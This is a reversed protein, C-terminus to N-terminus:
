EGGIRERQILDNLAVVDFRVRDVYSQRVALKAGHGYNATISKDSHGLIAKLVYDPAELDRLADTFLHRFSHFVKREGRFGFTQGYRSWWKSFNHSYFGNQGPRLDPFLRKGLSSDAGRELLGLDILTQHVPVQRLSTETKVKKDDDEARNIDFVWVGDICQLDSRHLQVIEGLRMGSFLGILPVWFKGDKFVHEGVTGARAESIRGTYVPTTFIVQLDELSYPGGTKSKQKKGAVAVKRGPVKDLYGEEVAWNLMAHFFRLRKEQTAYALYPGTENEAALQVFSKGAAAKAKLANPPMRKLLDRIGRVDADNIARIPREAPIIEYALRMTVDFDAITKPADGVEEKHARFRTAISQLTEGDTEGEDGALPPYGMAAMGAFRPDGQGISAYDGTLDGMLRRFQEIKAQVIGRCAHRTAGLDAKGGNPLLPALLDSADSEVAQSFKGSKLQAQYHGILDPMGAAEADADLAPDDMFVETYELSWNLARQFYAKIEADIDEISPGDQMGLGQFYVDLSNSLYRCRLTAEKRHVTRLSTSVEARGVKKVLHRPVAMRFYYTTGRLVLHPTIGM